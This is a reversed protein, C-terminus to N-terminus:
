SGTRRWASLQDTQQTRRTMKNTKDNKHEFISNQFISQYDWDCLNLETHYLTPTYTIMFM